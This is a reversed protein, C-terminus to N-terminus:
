NAIVGPPDASQPPSVARWAVGSPQITGQLTVGPGQPMSGLRYRVSLRDGELTTAFVGQPAGMLSGILEIGHFIFLAPHRPQCRADLAQASVLLNGGQSQPMADIRWGAKVLAGARTSADIRPDAVQVCQAPRAGASEALGTRPLTQFGDRWEMGALSMPPLVPMPPVDARASAFRFAVPVQVFSAVPKGRVTRPWFSWTWVSYLAARDLDANGSTGVLALRTARGQPSIEALLMATGQQGARIAEHPYNPPESYAIRVPQNGAVAGASPPVPARASQTRTVQAVARRAERPGSGQQASAAGPPPDRVAVPQLEGGGWQWRDARRIVKVWGEVQLLDGARAQQLARTHHLYAWHQMAQLRNARQVEDQVPVTAELAHAVIRWGPQRLAMELVVRLECCTGDAARRRQVIRIARTAFDDAPLRAQTLAHDALFGLQEPQPMSPQRACGDLLLIAMCAGWALRWAAGRVCWGRHLWREM